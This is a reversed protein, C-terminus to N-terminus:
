LACLASPSRTRSSQHSGANVFDPQVVTEYDQVPMASLGGSQLIARHFLHQAPKCALLCAIAIAGASEGFVTVNSPDGGFRHIERQVWELSAIVDRLMLNTVQLACPHWATLPRQTTAM